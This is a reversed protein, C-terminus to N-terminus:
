LPSCDVLWSHFAEPVSKAVPDEETNVVGDGYSPSLTFLEAWRAEHLDENRLDQKISILSATDVLRGVVVIVM